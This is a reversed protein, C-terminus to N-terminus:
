VPPIQIVPFDFCNPQGFHVYSEEEAVDSWCFVKQQDHSPGLRALIQPAVGSYRKAQLVTSVKADLAGFAGRLETKEELDGRCAIANCSDNKSAADTQFSNYSLLKEGTLADVITNHYAQFLYARPATHYCEDVNFSCVKAYGSAEFIDQFYPVNYSPWYSGESLTSTMDEVHVLGPVEEVVTLFGAVLPQSPTFLNLDLVMWQNTYTGSHYRSFHVAWDAGSTAMQHSTVARTWSLVSNPQVLELLHRNYLENTTEMVGLQAYGSVTFFDDVSSLLAPSSSFYVDYLHGAAGHRMLPISYHKIIRPGLAEYSDWTSHGFVVDSLDPLLKIIASCRQVLKKKSDNVQRSGYLRSSKGPEDFKLAIQYLDGYANILLFHEFTPHDLNVFVDQNNVAGRVAQPSSCGAVYGEFVGILQSLTSKVTYWYEDTASNKEAM